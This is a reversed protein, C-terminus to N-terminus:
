SEGFKAKLREYEAREQELARKGWFKERIAHKELNKAVVGMRHSTEAHSLPRDVKIHVFGDGSLAINGALEEMLRDIDRVSVEDNLNFKVVDIVKHSYVTTRIKPIKM